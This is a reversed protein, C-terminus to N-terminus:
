SGFSSKLFLNLSLFFHMRKQEWFPMLKTTLAVWLAIGICLIQTEAGLLFIEFYFVTFTFDSPFVCGNSTYDLYTKHSHWNVNSDKSSLSLRPLFAGVHMGLFVSLFLVTIFCFKVICSSPILANKFTSPNKMGVAIGRELGFFTLTATTYIGRRCWCINHCLNTFLIYEWILNCKISANKCVQVGRVNIRSFCYYKVSKM